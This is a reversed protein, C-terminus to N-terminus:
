RPEYWLSIVQESPKSRPSAQNTLDFYAFEESRAYQDFWDAVGISTGTIWPEESIAAFFAELYLAQEQFDTIYTKRATLDESEIQADSSSASFYYYVPVIGALQPKSDSFFAKFESLLEPMTPHEPDEVHSRFFGAGTGVMVVDATDLYSLDPSAWVNVTIIIDGSFVNRIDAIMERWRRNYDPYIEPKVTFNTWNFPAFADVGFKEARAAREVSWAHWEDFWGDWWEASTQKYEWIQQIEGPTLYLGPAEQETQMVKIGRSHAADILAKYFDDDTLSLGNNPPAFKPKPGVVYQFNAPTINIWNSNTRTVVDFAHAFMREQCEQDDRRLNFGPGGQNEFLDAMNLSRFELLNQNGNNINVSVEDQRSSGDTAMVTLSLRYDGPWIATATVSASSENELDIVHQSMHARSDPVAMKQEWQWSSWDTSDLGFLVSGDLVVPENTAGSVVYEPVVVSIPAAPIECTPTPTSTPLSVTKTSTPDVIPPTPPPTATSTPPQTAETQPVPESEVATSKIVPTPSPSTTPRLENIVSTPSVDTEASCGLIVTLLVALITIISPARM